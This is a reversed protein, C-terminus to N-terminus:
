AKFLKSSCNKELNISLRNAILWDSFRPLSSNFTTVLQNYNVDSSVFAADDAFLVSDVGIAAEPLDNIYVLFLLSGLVSGQPIGISVARSESLSKGIKVRQTRGTLFQLVM